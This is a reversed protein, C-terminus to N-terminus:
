YSGNFRSDLGVSVFICDGSGYSCKWSSGIYKPFIDTFNKPCKRGGGGIGRMGRRGCRKRGTGAAEKSVCCSVHVVGICGGGKKSAM